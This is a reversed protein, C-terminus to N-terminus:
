PKKWVNVLEKREGDKFNFERNEANGNEKVTSFLRFNLLLNEPFILFFLSMEPSTNKIYTHPHKYPIYIDIHHTYPTTNHKHIYTNTYIHAYIYIYYLCLALILQM